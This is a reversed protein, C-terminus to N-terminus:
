SPFTSMRSLKNDYLQSDMEWESRTIFINGTALQLTERNYHELPHNRLVKVLNLSGCSADRADCSCAAQLWEYALRCHM